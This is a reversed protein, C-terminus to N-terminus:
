RGCSFRTVSISGFNGGAPASDCNRLRGRLWMEYSRDPNETLLYFRPENQIHSVVNEMGADDRGDFRNPL